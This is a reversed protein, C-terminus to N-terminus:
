SISEVEFTCRDVIGNAACSIERCDLKRDKLVELTGCIAGAIYDCVPKKSRGYVKLYSAAVPSNKLELITKKEDMRKIDM